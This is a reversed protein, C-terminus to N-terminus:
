FFSYVSSGAVTKLLGRIEGSAQQTGHPIGLFGFLNWCVKMSHNVHCDLLTLSFSQNLWTGWVQEM